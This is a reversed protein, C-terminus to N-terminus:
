VYAEIGRYRFRRVDISSLTFSSELAFPDHNPTRGFAVQLQASFTLFPVPALPQVFLRAAETGSNDNRGGVTERRSIGQFPKWGRRHRCAQQRASDLCRRRAGHERQGRPRVQTGRM